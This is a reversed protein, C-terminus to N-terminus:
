GNIWNRPFYKFQIKVLSEFSQKSIEDFIKEFIEERTESISEFTISSIFDGFLQILSQYLMINQSLKYRTKGIYIEPREVSSVLFDNGYNRNFAKGAAYQLVTNSLDINMLDFLDLYIFIQELCYDSLDTIKIERDKARKDAIETEKTSSKQTKISHKWKEKSDISKKLTLQLHNLYQFM